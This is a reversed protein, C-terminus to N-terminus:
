RNTLRSVTQTPLDSNRTTSAPLSRRGNADDRPGSAVRHRRPARLRPLAHRRLCGFPVFALRRSRLLLAVPREEIQGIGGDLPHDLEGLLAAIDGIVLQVLDQGGLLEGRVLDLVHEALERLHADVDDLGLLGFLALLGAAASAASSSSASPPSRTSVARSGRRRRGRSRGLLRGVAGVIRHAHVQALHARDLKEGALALDRDGLADLGAALRHDGPRQSLGSVKWAM